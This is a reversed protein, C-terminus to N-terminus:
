ELVARVRIFGDESRPANALIDDRPSSADAIDDRMVTELGAAHGTPEAGTTDVQQLVDFHGLINSLQDRMREIEDDTMAVRALAAIHRVEDSTLRLNLL